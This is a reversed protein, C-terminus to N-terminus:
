WWDPATLVDNPSIADNFALLQNKFDQECAYSSFHINNDECVQKFLNRTLIPAFSQNILFTCAQISHESLRQCITSFLESAEPTFLSEGKVISVYYWPKTGVSEIASVIGKHYNMVTEINWPGEAWVIIFNDIKVIEYVGHQKCLPDQTKTLNYPFPKIDM